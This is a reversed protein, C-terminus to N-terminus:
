GVSQEGTSEVSLSARTLGASRATRGRQEM